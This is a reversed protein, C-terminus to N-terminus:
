QLKNLWNFEEIIFSNFVMEKNTNKNIVLMKIQYNKIPIKTIISQIIALINDEKKRLLILIGM